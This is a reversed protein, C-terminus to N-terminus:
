NNKSAYLIGMDPTTSDVKIKFNQSALILKIEELKEPFKNFMHYEMVIKNIKKFYELPLNKLIEYEAGECDMKLLNCFQIQNEDFINKLSTSEVLVSNQSKTYISHGADDDNLFIQIKKKSDLVACNYANVQKLSNIKINEILLEFNTKVPEYAYIKGEKCFQSVYLTFLGIHAGIDIVVDNSNIKLYKKDYEEVVWVNILAM